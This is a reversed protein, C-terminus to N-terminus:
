WGCCDTKFRCVPCRWVAHMRFMEAGCRECLVADVNPRKVSRPVPERQDDVVYIELDDEPLDDRALKAAIRDLEAYADEATAHTGIVTAQRDTDRGWSQVLHFTM